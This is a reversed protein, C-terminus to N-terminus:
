LERAGSLVQLWTLQKGPSPFPGTSLVLASLHPTSSSSTM